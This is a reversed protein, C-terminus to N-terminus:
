QYRETVDSIITFNTIKKFLKTERGTNVKIDIYYENPILDETYITFFNYLFNKEIPQYEIIDIERNGDNVYLRYQCDDLLEKKDQEFEKRFDVTVERIEGRRIKENFNIGYVSPVFNKKFNSNSGINIKRSIPNTAFELETDNIEVGNLALNSWIDYYITNPKLEIDNAKIEVYYVGKSSQIVEFKTDNITCTPITDLNTPEGDDSVYLYLRNTKGITFSERDDKNYEEYIAEVYPHFFTNTNDDFFGVYQQLDTYINEYLPSFSLCLGYNRNNQISEFVYDTIDIKLNEQGFDFHQAGVIISPECNIYKNFEETLTQKDYIGGILSIKNTKIDAMNLEEDKLNIKESEFPWPIGNKAFYWNSANESVSRNNRIWFDSIFDFGRGEDFDCPLKFLILDFSCARQANTNQNRILNKEYPIGDISMCNTMRLYFRLKDTNAFTKDNILNKIENIPFHILGRMLGNGYAVHLIPNLGINQRSNEIISNTKDLFFHRIM